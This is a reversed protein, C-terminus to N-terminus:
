EITHLLIELLSILFAGPMAEFLDFQSRDDAGINTYTPWLLISDVGGYRANVDDLWKQVTYKHAVPDYFYRDYPHMQPQMYSTQTWTLQQDRYIATGDYKVSKKYDERWSLMNKHWAAVTAPKMDAPGDVQKGNGMPNTVPSARRSAAATAATERLALLAIACPLVVARM